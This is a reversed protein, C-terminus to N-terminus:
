FKDNLISLKNSPFNNSCMIKRTFNNVNENNIDPLNESLFIM